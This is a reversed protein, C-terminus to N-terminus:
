FKVTFRKDYQGNKQDQGDKEVLGNKQDLEDQAKKKDQAKTKIGKAGSKNARIDQSHDFAESATGQKDDALSLASIVFLGSFMMMMIKNKM